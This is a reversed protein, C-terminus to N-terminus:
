NGGIQVKALLAQAAKLHDMIVPLTAIAFTKLDPDQGGDIEWELLQLAKQHDEVQSQAYRLDFARGTLKQLQGLVVKHDSGLEAPLVIANAKALMQVQQNGKGHDAVMRQAFERVLPMSARGGAEQGFAVEALGGDAILVTFLRDTQNPQHPAPVGPREEVIGPPTFAPNGFQAFASSASLAVAALGVRVLSNWMTAAEM